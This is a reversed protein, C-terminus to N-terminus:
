NIGWRSEPFETNYSIIKLKEVFKYKSISKKLQKTLNNKFIVAERKTKFPKSIIERKNNKFVFGTVLYKRM